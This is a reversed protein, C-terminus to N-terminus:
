RTAIPLYILYREGDRSMSVRLFDGGKLLDVRARAGSGGSTGVAVGGGAMVEAVDRAAVIGHAVLEVRQGADESQGPLPMLHEGTLRIEYTGPQLVKGDALVAHTIRVKGLVSAAHHALAPGAALVGALALCANTMRTM